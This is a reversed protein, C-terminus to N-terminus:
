KAHCVSDMCMEVFSGTENRKIASYRTHTHTLTHTHTYWTKKIWKDASTSTTEMDQRNYVTSCHVDSHM